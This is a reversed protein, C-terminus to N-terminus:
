LATDAAHLLFLPGLLGGKRRDATDSLDLLVDQGVLDDIPLPNQVSEWPMLSWHVRQLYFNPLAMGFVIGFQTELVRCPVGRVANVHVTRYGLIRDPQELPLLDVVTQALGRGLGLGPVHLGVRLPLACGPHTSFRWESM